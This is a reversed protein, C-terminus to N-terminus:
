APAQGDDPPPKPASGDAPFLDDLPHPTFPPRVGLDAAPDATKRLWEALARSERDRIIVLARVGGVEAALIAMNARRVEDVTSM